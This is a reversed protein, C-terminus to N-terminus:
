DIIPLGAMFRLLDGKYYVTGHPKAGCAEEYERKDYNYSRGECIATTQGEMWHLFQRYRVESGLIDKVQEATYGLRCDPKRLDRAMEDRLQMRRLLDFPIANEYGGPM